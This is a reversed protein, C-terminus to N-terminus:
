KDNLAHVIKETMDNLNDMYDYALPDLPLVDGGIAAAINLATTRDFQPQVFIVRVNRDMATKILETLDKGKPTKGETEVPVQELNYADAFYGFSPHFVFFARGKLPLLAARIRSDLRDLDNIFLDLNNKYEEEGAPDAHVLARFITRAQIKVMSPDLWIHPDKGDTDHDGHRHHGHNHHHGGMTRLRIGQRTDVIKVDTNDQIKEMLPNEFPVGIRFLMSANSLRSMQVPSLSYTAPSKGPPVLVDVSVRKGGIRDVFYAQPQISVFVDLKKETDGAAAPLDAQVLALIIILIYNIRKSSVTM